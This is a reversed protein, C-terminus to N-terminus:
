FTRSPSTMASKIMLLHTGSSTRPPVEWPRRPINTASLECTTVSTPLARTHSDSLEYTLPFILVLKGAARGFAGEPAEYPAHWCQCCRAACRSRCRSQEEHECGALAISLLFQFLVPQKWSAASLLHSIPPHSISLFIPSSQHPPSSPSPQLTEPTLSKGKDTGAVIWTGPM